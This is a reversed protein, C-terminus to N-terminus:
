LQSVMDSVGAYGWDKATSSIPDSSSTRCKNDRANYEPYDDYSRAGNKAYDWYDSM